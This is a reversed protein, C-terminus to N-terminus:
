AGRYVTPIAPFNGHGPRDITWELTNANWPNAAAPRGLFMSYFFNAIFILQASGLIFACISMFMNLGQLDAFSQYRAYDFIRRPM